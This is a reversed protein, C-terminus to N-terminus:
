FGPDSKQRTSWFHQIRVSVLAAVVTVNGIMLTQLAM